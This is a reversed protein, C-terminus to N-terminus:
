LKIRASYITSGTQMGEVTVTENLHDEFYRRAERHLMESGMQTAMGASILRFCAGNETLLYLGDGPVPRFPSKPDKDIIKGEFIDM